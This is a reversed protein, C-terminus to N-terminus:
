EESVLSKYIYIYREVMKNIDYKVAENACNRSIEEYLITNSKLKLVHDALKTYDGIPFLLGSGKVMKELGPAASAIFPKGSAMCEIASLSLGEYHTSLLTVHAMALLAPINNQIGLFLVRDILNLKQALEECSKKTAGDGVLVLKVEKPLFQLSKIATKQDKQERFSSVQCLIFDEAHLGIKGRDYPSSSSFSSVKIGNTIVTYKESLLVELHELLNNQVEDTISVIKDYSNYLYKDIFKFLSNKRRSNTTNHETYVLKVKSFSFIKALAVWYLTPFLHVHIIDYKKLLPIIRFVNLPNYIKKISGTTLSYVNVGKTVLDDYFPTKNGNLLLLDIEINENKYLPISDVLLKEAGGVGISTIIQLIKM